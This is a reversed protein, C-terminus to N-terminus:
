SIGQIRDFVLAKPDLNGTHQFRANIAAIKVHDKILCMLIMVVVHFIQVTVLMALMMLFMMMVMMVFFMMM